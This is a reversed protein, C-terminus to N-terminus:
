KRSVIIGKRGVKFCAIFSGWYTMRWCPVRTEKPKTECYKDSMGQTQVNYPFYVHCSLLHM